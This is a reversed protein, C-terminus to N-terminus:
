ETVETVQLEGPTFDWDTDASGSIDKAEEESDAEVECWSIDIREIQYKKKSM